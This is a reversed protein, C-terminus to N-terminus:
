TLYSWEEVAKKDEQTWVPHSILFVLSPKRDELNFWLAWLLAGTQSTCKVSSLPPLLILLFPPVVNLLLVSPMSCLSFQLLYSVNIHAQDSYWLVRREVCLDEKTWGPMATELETSQAVCSM